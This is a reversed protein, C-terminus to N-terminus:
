SCWKLSMSITIFFVATIRDRKCAYENAKDISTLIFDIRHLLIVLFPLRLWLLLTLLCKVIRKQQLRSVDCSHLGTLFCVSVSLNGENISLKANYM